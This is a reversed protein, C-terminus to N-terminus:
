SRAGNIMLQIRLYSQKDILKFHMAGLATLVDGPRDLHMGPLYRPMFAKLAERVAGWGDPGSAGERAILAQTDGHFMRFTDWCMAALQQLRLMRDDSAGDNDPGAAGGKAAAGAKRMTLVMWVDPAECQYFAQLGNQTM